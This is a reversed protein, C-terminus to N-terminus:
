RPQTARRWIATVVYDAGSPGEEVGVRYGIPELLHAWTSPRLPRGPSLDAEPPASDSAWASPAWSHIVLVGDPALREGVLELLQRREGHATGDVVGSLVIGALGSPEVARLHDMVGEERLDLGDREGADIRGVRPDVGYADVGGAVLARVLWGDGAAAHLVRGPVTGLADRAGAVWWAAPDGDGPADVVPAPPVRQGDLERALEGLRDDVLHLARSTAAAFQSVQHTVFGIYWLNLSRLGKKLVAGGSRNSAVPVVPDIFASTDVLALADELAGGRGAVPSHELFLEDLQREIRAPLDGSERRRRVERDIESMVGALYARHAEVEDATVDGSM